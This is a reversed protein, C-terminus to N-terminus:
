PTIASNSEVEREDSFSDTNPHFNYTLVIPIGFFICLNNSSYQSQVSSATIGQMLKEGQSTIGDREPIGRM